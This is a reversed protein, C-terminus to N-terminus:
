NKQALLLPDVERWGSSTKLSNPMLLFAINLLSIYTNSRKQLDLYDEAESKRDVLSIAPCVMAAAQFLNSKEYNSPSRQSGWQFM